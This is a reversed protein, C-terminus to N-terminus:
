KKGVIFSLAFQLGTYDQYDHLYNEAEYLNGFADFKRVSYPMSHRSRLTAVYAASVGFRNSIIFRIGARYGLYGFTNSRQRYEVTM